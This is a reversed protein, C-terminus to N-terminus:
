LLIIAVVTSAVLLSIIVVSVQIITKVVMQRPNSINKRYAGLEYSMKDNHALLLELSSDIAAQREKISAIESKIESLDIYDFNM